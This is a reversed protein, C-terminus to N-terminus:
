RAVVGLTNEVGSQPSLMHLPGVFVLFNLFCELTKNICFDIRMDIFPFCSFYKWGMFNEFFHALKAQETQGFGFGM